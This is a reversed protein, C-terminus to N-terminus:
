VSRAVLYRLFLYGDSELVRILDLPVPPVHEKPGEILNKVEDGGGVLMPAYTLFVEDLVDEALLAGAVRPGGECLVIHIGHRTRLAGLAERFTPTGTANLDVRALIDGLAIPAGTCIVVAQEPDQFLPIDLPVRGSRTLICCLPEPTRGTHIREERTGEDRIISGYRETALTGTGVLVCDAERRLAAFQQHDAESGLGGSTGGVTARGDASAAMNLAVWPRDAPPEREALPCSRETEFLTRLGGDTM